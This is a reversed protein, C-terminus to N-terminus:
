SECSILCGDYIIGGICSMTCQDTLCAGHQQYYLFCDVPPEQESFSVSAGAFFLFLSLLVSHTKRITIM